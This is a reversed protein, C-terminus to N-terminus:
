LLNQGSFGPASSVWSQNSKGAADRLQQGQLSGVRPIEREIMYKKM